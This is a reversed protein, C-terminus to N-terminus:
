IKLLGLACAIVAAPYGIKAVRVANHPAYQLLLTLMMASLTLMGCWLVPGIHWGSAAICCTFSLAIGSWGLLRFLRRRGDDLATSRGHIDAYHRDMTLSIAALGGYTFAIGAAVFAIM